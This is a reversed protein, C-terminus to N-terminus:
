IVLIGNISFDLILLGFGYGKVVGLLFFKGGIYINVVWCLLLFIIWEMFFKCFFNINKLIKNENEGIYKM